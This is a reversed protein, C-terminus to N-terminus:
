DIRYWNTGDSQITMSGAPIDTSSSGGFDEYSDIGNSITVGTRNVIVYIRREATNAPPLLVTAGVVAWTNVIVTHHSEDLITGPVLVEIAAGLSGDVDMRSNTTTTGVGVDGGNMLLNGGGTIAVDDGIQTTISSGGTEVAADGLTGGDLTLADDVQADTLSTAEGVDGTTPNITLVSSGGDGLQTLRVQGIGILAYDLVNGSSPGASNRNAAVVGVSMGPLFIPDNFTQRYSLNDITGIVGFQTAGGKGEFVGGATRGTASGVNFDTFGEVGIGNWNTAGAPISTGGQVGVVTPNSLTNDAAVVATGVGVMGVGTTAGTAGDGTVRAEFNAGQVQYIDSSSIAVARAAGLAGTIGSSLDETGAVYNQTAETTFVDGAGILSGAAPANTVLLVQSGPDQAAGDIQIDEGEEATILTTGAELPGGLEIDDGTRTLGNSATVAAPIPTTGLNGDADIGVLETPTAAGLDRMQVAGSSYIARQNSGAAAPNVAVVAAGGGLLQITAATLQSGSASFTIDDNAIALVGVNNTNSSNATALVGISRADMNGSLSNAGFRGGIFANSGATSGGSNQADAVVGTVTAAADALLSGTSGLQANFVAGSANGFYTANGSITGNAVTYGNVARLENNTGGASQTITSVIANSSVGDAATAAINVAQNGTTPTPGVVGTAIVSVTGNVDLGNTGNVTLGTAAAATGVTANGDVDLANTVNLGNTASVTVGGTGDFEFDYSGNADNTTVETNKILDGGLQVNGNNASLGNDATVVTNLS